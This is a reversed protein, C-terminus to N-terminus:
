CPQAQFPNDPLPALPPLPEPPPPGDVLFARAADSAHPAPSVTSGNALETVLIRADVKSPDVSRLQHALDVLHTLDLTSDVQAHQGLIRAYRDLALPDDPASRLQRLMAEIFAQQ